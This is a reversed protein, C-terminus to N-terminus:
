VIGLAFIKANDWKSPRPESVTEGEMKELTSGYSAMTQGALCATAGAGTSAGPRAADREAVRWADGREAGDEEEDAHLNIPAESVVVRRGAPRARRGRKGRLFPHSPMIPANPPWSTLKMMLVPSSESSGDFPDATSSPWEHDGGGPVNRALGAPSGEGPEATIAAIPIGDEELALASAAALGADLSTAPGM